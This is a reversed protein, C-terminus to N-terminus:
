TQRKKKFPLYLDEVETLNQARQISGKLKDTLVEQELLSKLVTEKRKELTQFIDWNKKIVEIAVEDLNGTAEKRYRSIFPVTAGEQLLSLTNKVGAEPLSTAKTIFSLGQM